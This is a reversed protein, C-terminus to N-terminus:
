NTEPLFFGYYIILRIDGILGAAVRPDMMTTTVLVGLNPTTNATWRRTVDELDLRVLGGRHERLWPTIHWRDMIPDAAVPITTGLVVAQADWQTTIEQVSFSGHQERTNEGVVWELIANDIRRGEGSRMGSLDFQLAMKTVGSGDDPLVVAKAPSAVLLDARVEKPILFCMSLLLLLYLMRAKM